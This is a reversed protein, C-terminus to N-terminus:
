FFEGVCADSSVSGGDGWDVGCVGNCKASTCEDVSGCAAGDAKKELCYGFEDRAHSTCYHGASCSSTAACLGSDQQAQCVQPGWFAGTICPATVPDCPADIVTRPSCRYVIPDCFLGDDKYCTIGALEPSMTLCPYGEGCDGQCKQDLKGRQFPFLAVVPAESCTGVDLSASRDCTGSACSQGTTCPTGLPANSAFMRTCAPSSLDVNLTGCNRLSALLSNLCTGAAQPDYTLGAGNGDDRLTTYRLLATRQCSAAVFPSVCCPEVAECLASSFRQAFQDLPVPAAGGGASSVCGISLSGLACAFGAM